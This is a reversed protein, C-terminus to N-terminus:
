FQTGWGVYAGGPVIAVTPGEASPESRLLMYAGVGVAALGVVGLTLGLARTDRYEPKEGTDKESSAYLVIGTLMMAGGLGLAIIPIKGRPSSARALTVEVASTEGRTITVSRTADAHGVSSITLAHPGPPLSHTLPTVGIAKGDIMVLAGAPTTTLTIQGVESRGKGALSTMLEDTLARVAADTCSACARRVVVPDAGTEFWYATITVDRMGTTADALDVRAFVIQPTKSKREVVKRACALDEVVFCDLLATIADSPLPSPVLTNGRQRLWDELQAALQPQITADGTVVVGVSSDAHAAPTWAGLSLLILLTRIM